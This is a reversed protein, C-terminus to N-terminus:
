EQWRYTEDLDATVRLISRDALGRDLVAMASRGLVGDADILEASEEGDVVFGTM